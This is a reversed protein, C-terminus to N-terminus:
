REGETKDSAVADPDCAPNAIVRDLYATDVDAPKVFRRVYKLAERLRTNEATIRSLEAQSERTRAVMNRVIAAIWSKGDDGLEDWEPSAYIELVDDSNVVEEALGFFEHIPREAKESSQEPTNTM